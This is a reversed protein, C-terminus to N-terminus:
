SNRKEDCHDLNRPVHDFVRRTDDVVRELSFLSKIKHYNHLAVAEHIPKLTFNDIDYVVVDISNFYEWLTSCRSIYVKKGKGLLQILNGFGQQRDHNFVVVDISDLLRTYEDYPMFKFIPFFDNGFLEKGCECVEDAYSPDGYSLPAIIKINGQLSDSGAENAIRKFAQCHRNSPTASNGVLIVECTSTSGCLDGTFVNSPYFVADLVDGRFGYWLKANGADKENGTIIYGMKKIVPRRFFEQKKLRRDNEIKHYRYLDGGWIVWYCKKLLWPMTWLLQIVRIDFLGHLIIKDAFHMKVVMTLYHQIIKHKGKGMTQINEYSQLQDHAMGRRLMFDHDNFEFHERVMEIFPPIFKDTSGIHLM